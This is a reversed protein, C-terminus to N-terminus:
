LAALVAMGLQGGRVGDLGRARPPWVPAPVGEGHAAVAGPLLASVVVGIGVAALWRHATMAGAVSRAPLQRPELPGRPHETAFGPMPTGGIGRTIFAYLEADTHFPVHISLDSPRINLGASIPGNDVTSLVQYRVVYIRADLEPAAVIVRLAGDELRPDGLGARAACSTAILSRSILPERASRM